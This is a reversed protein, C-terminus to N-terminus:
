GYRVSISDSESFRHDAKGLISTWNSWRTTAAQYNNGISTYNPRPYFEMMRTAVPSFRGAPIINGPFPADGAFPDRITLQQGRNNVIGSFDGARQAPTPVNNLTTAKSTERYSEWSMMFFTKDHGNYFGPLVVPGSATAGFQNRHLPYKVPDFFPRADLVGNRLYEFVTGHLQNTGSKLVMNMIGGALKGYQASFGSAEMKFEELADINPRLQAAAGRASRDNFGDLYFNTNDGRAGNVTMGSGAAGEALPQVGPVLVAIDTFDRGNLPVEQIEQHGIVAGKIAGDETNLPAAEATVNVTTSVAGVKLMIDDRLRQGTELVIMSEHYTEFGPKSATLEYAGPALGTITFLGNENTHITQEINTDTNRIAIRVGAVVAKSSDLVLGTVSALNGQGFLVSSLVTGLIVFRTLLPTSM